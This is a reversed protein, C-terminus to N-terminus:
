KFMIPRVELASREATTYAHFRANVRPPPLFRMVTRYHQGAISSKRGGVREQILHHKFTRASWEVLRARQKSFNLAMAPFMPPRQGSPLLPAEQSKLVREMYTEGFLSSPSRANLTLHWGVYLRYSDTTLKGRSPLVQHAINQYFVLLHGPPVIKIMTQCDRYLAAKEATIPLFGGHTNTDHHTGPACAFAQEQHPDLNLWGGFVEQPFIPTKIKSPQGDANPLRVSAPTQDRHWHEGTLKSGTTRKSLRDLLMEVTAGGEKKADGRLCLLEQFLRDEISERIRVRLARITPHHFSSPSGLAGFSGLVLPTENGLYEPFEKIADKVQALLSERDKVDPVIPITTVGRGHLRRAASRILDDTPSYM